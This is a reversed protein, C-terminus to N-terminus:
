GCSWSSHRGHLTKVVYVRLRMRIHQRNEPMHATCLADCRSTMLLRRRQTRCGPTYIFFPGSRSVLTPDPQCGAPSGSTSSRASASMLTSTRMGPAIDGTRMSRRSFAHPPCLILQLLIDRQVRSTAWDPSLGAARTSLPNHFARHSWTHPPRKSLAMAQTASRMGPMFYSREM